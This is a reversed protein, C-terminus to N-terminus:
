NSEDSNEQSSFNLLMRVGKQGSLAKYNQAKITGAFTKEMITSCMYLGIGTGQKDGKTTFYPEFIKDLAEEKIGGAEDEVILEIKKDVINTYIRIPKYELELEEYADRANSILNLVVQELEGIAGYVQIKSDVRNELEVGHNRLQAILIDVAYNVCEYLSFYAKMKNPRFFNMFDDITKSMSSTMQSLEKISGELVADDLLGMEKKLRLDLTTCNIVNLPQRWQHAIAGLMEGMSALKSQQILMVEQKQQLKRTEHAETMDTITTIKYPGGVINDLRGATAVIHIKKGNKGVVDWEKPLEDQRGQIFEDHLSILEKKYEDPVVMTFHNGILESEQYGYIECYAPNVVVFRGDKDTLCIGLNATEIWALIQLQLLCM